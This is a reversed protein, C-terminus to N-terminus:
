CALEERFRRESGGGRKDSFRWLGAERGIGGGLEWDWGHRRMIMVVGVGVVVVVVMGVPVATAM